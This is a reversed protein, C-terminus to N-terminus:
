KEPDLKKLLPRVHDKKLRDPVVSYILSLNIVAMLLPVVEHACNRLLWVPFPDFECSKVRSSQLLNNIEALTDPEYFDVAM